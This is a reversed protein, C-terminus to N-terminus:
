NWTSLVAMIAIVTNGALVMIILAGLIIAIRSLSTIQVATRYNEFARLAGVFVFAVSRLLLVFLGSGYIRRCVATLTRPQPSICTRSGM